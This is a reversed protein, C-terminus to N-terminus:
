ALEAAERANKRDRLVIAMDETAHILHTVFVEPNPIDDICKVARETEFESNTKREMIWFRHFFIESCGLNPFICLSCQARDGMFSFCVKEFRRAFSCHISWFEIEHCGIRHSAFMLHRGYLQIHIQWLSEVKGAYIFFAFLLADHHDMACNHARYFAKRRHQDLVEASHEREPKSWHLDDHQGNGFLM